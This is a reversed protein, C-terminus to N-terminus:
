GARARGDPRPLHLVADAVLRGAARGRRRGALTRRDPGRQGGPRCHDPERRLLRQPDGAGAARGLSGPGRAPLRLRGPRGRRPAACRRHLRRGPRQGARRAQARAGPGRGARKHSSASGTAKTDKYPNPRPRGINVSSLYPCGVLSTLDAGAAWGQHRLTRQAAGRSKPLIAVTASRPRTMTIVPAIAAPFDVTASSSARRSGAETWMRPSTKRLITTFPRISM